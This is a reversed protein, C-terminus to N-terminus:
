VHDNRPELLKQTEKLDAMPVCLYYKLKSLDEHGLLDAIMFLSMGNKLLHSACSRRLTHCSCDIGTEKRITRFLADVYSSSLKYDKQNLWLFESTGNARQKCYKRLWSLAMAGFPVVREKQGKGKIKLIGNRFDIDKMKLDLVEQRRAGTSYTLELFSRNRLSTFTSCDFFNFVRDIEEYTLVKPITRKIAKLKINLTPNQFIVLEKELWNFFAKLGRLRVDRTNDKLKSIHVLYASIDEEKIDQLRKGLPVKFFSRVTSQRSKISQESYNLSRLYETFAELKETIIQEM